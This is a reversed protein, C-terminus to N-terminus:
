YNFIGKRAAQTLQEIRSTEKAVRLATELDRADKQTKIKYSM